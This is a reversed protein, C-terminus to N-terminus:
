AHVTRFAFHSMRVNRSPKFEEPKTRWAIFKEPDYRRLALIARGGSLGAEEELLKLAADPTACARVQSRWFTDAMQEFATQEKPKTKM